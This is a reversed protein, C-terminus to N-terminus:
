WPLSSKGAQCQIETAESKRKHVYKFKKLLNRRTGPPFFAHSPMFDSDSRLSVKIHAATGKIGRKNGTVDSTPHSLRPSHSLAQGSSALLATSRRARSVRGWCGFRAGSGRFSQRSHEQSYCCHLLAACPFVPMKIFKKCESAQAQGQSKPQLFRAAHKTALVESQHHAGKAECSEEM